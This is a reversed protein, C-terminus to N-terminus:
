NRRLSPCVQGYFYYSSFWFGFNRINTGDM